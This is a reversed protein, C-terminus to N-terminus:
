RRGDDPLRQADGVGPGLWQKIEVLSDVKQAAEALREPADDCGYYLEMTDARTAYSRVLWMSPMDYGCEDSNFAYRNSRWRSWGQEFAAFVTATVAPSLTSSARTPYEPNLRRRSGSFDETVFGDGSYEVRGDAAIVVRYADCWGLCPWSRELSISRPQETTCSVVFLAGITFALRM